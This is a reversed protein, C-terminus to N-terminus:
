GARGLVSLRGSVLVLMVLTSIVIVGGSGAGSGTVGAHRGGAV